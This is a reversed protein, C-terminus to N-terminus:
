WTGDPLEVEIEGERDGRMSSAMDSKFGKVVMGCEEKIKRVTYRDSSVFVHGERDLLRTLYRDIDIGGRYTSSAKGEPLITGEAIPVIQTLGHGIDLSLGSQSGVSYLSMVCQNQLSVSEFGLTEFHHQLLWRRDRSSGLPPTLVVGRDDPDVKLMEDYVNQLFNELRKTNVITGREICPVNRSMVGDKDIQGPIRVRSSSVSEGKWM